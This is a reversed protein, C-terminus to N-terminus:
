HLKGNTAVLAAYLVETSLETLRLSSLRMQHVFATAGAIDIAVIKLEPFSRLLALFPDLNTPESSQAIVADARMSRIERALDGSDAVRGVITIEPLPALAATVIDSLM